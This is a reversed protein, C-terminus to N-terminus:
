LYGSHDLCLGRDNWLVVADLEFLQFHGSCDERRAIQPLVRKSKLMWLQSVLLILQRKEEQFIFFDYLFLKRNEYLSTGPLEWQLEASVFGVLIWSSTPEM